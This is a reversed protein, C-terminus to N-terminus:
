GQFGIKRTGHEQDLFKQLGKEYDEKIRSFLFDYFKNYETKSKEHFEFEQEFGGIRIYYISEHKKVAFALAVTEGPGEDEVPCLTIGMGFHWYTDEALQMTDALSYRHKPDIQGSLPIYTVQERPCGYYDLMGSIFDGAFDHCSKRYDMYNTRATSYAHCLEDFKSM